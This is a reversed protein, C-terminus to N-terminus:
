DFLGRVYGLRSKLSDYNPGFRDLLGQYGECNLMNEAPADKSQM